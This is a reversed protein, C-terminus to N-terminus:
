QNEQAFARSGVLRLFGFSVVLTALALV